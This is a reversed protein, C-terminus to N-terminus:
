ATNCLLTQQTKSNHHNNVSHFLYLGIQTSGLWLATYEGHLMNYFVNLIVHAQVQNESRTGSIIESTAEVLRLGPM